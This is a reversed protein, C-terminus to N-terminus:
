PVLGQSGFRLSRAIHVGFSTILVDAPEMKAVFQLLGLNVAQTAPVKNCLTSKRAKRLTQVQASVFCM